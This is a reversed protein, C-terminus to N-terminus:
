NSKVFAGFNGILNKVALSPNLDDIFSFDSCHTLCSRMLTLVEFSKTRFKLPSSEIVKFIIEIKQEIGHNTFSEPQPGVGAEM